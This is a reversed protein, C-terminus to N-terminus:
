RSLHMRALVADIQEDSTRWDPGSRECIAALGLLELPSDGLIEVGARVACWPVADGPEHQVRWGREELLLIAPVIVNAAAALRFPEHPAVLEVQNGDPDELVVGEVGGPSTRRKAGAAIAMQAAKGVDDVGVALRIGGVPHTGAPYLEIVTGGFRCSYHAPGGHQEPALQLGFARYVQASREVDRCRVVVLKLELASMTADYSAV